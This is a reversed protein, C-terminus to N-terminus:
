NVNILHICVKVAHQSAILEKPIEFYDDVVAIPKRRVAKGKLAGIDQGFIKEALESDSTTVPNNHIMNM